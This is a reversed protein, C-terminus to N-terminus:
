RGFRRRIGSREQDDFVLRWWLYPLILLLLGRLVLSSDAPLMGVAWVAAATLAIKGLRGWEYPVHYRPQIYILIGVAIVAYSIVTLWASAMYGFRPILFGNGAINILASIGIILPIVRTKKKLYIGVMFNAYVGNLIHALMVVPVVTFGAWYTEEILPGIGPLNMTLLPELFFVSALWIWSVFLIYYTLVRAFTEKADSDEATQLFFPQWAYRFAQAIMNMLMAIRYGASYIGAQDVGLYHEIWKRDSFEVAVMFLQSPLNPIGFLLWERVQKWDWGFRLSGRALVLLVILVAVSTALFAYFAGLVGLRLTGVFLINLSINIIVNFLKVMSFAIPKNRIRLWTFIHYALTDLLLVAACLRTIEIEVPGATSVVVRAIPDAFLLLLISVLGGLGFTHTLVLGLDRRQVQESEAASFRLFAIDMGHIYLPQLITVLVMFLAYVGYESTSMLHSYYPLLLFSVARAAVTGLGYVASQKALGKIKAFM